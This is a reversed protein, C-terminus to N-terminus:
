IEIGWLYPLFLRSLPYYVKFYEIEIGWLYPLVEWYRVGLVWYRDEKLEEYTPYFRIQPLFFSLIRLIEIGWLYPLFATYWLPYIGCTLFNWNRMPLTFVREEGWIFHGGRYIEIGWLYPLFEKDGDWCVETNVIEIGWLYPLFQIYVRFHRHLRMNWNRMPLTFVFIDM